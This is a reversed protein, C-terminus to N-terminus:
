LNHNCMLVDFIKEIKSTQERIADMSSIFLKLQNQTVLNSDFTCKSLKNVFSSASKTMSNIVVISNLFDHKLKNKEATNM